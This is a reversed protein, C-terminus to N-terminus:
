EPLIEIKGYSKGDIKKQKPDGKIGIYGGSGAVADILEQANVKAIANSVANVTVTDGELDWGSFTSSTSVALSQRVAYGEFSGMAGGSLTAYLFKIDMDIYATGGSKM